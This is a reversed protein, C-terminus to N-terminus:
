NTIDEYLRPYVTYKIRYTNMRNAIKLLGTGTGSLAAKKLKHM